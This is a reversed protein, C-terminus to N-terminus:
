VSMKCQGGPVSFLNRRWKESDATPDFEGVILRTAEILRKKSYKSAWLLRSGLRPHSFITNAYASFRQICEEVTMELRGLMIAILRIFTLEFFSQSPQISIIMGEVAPDM